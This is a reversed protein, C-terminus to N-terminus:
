KRTFKFGTKMGDFSSALSSLTKVTTNSSSSAIGQALTMLKTSDFTLSLQTSSVTAYATGFSLGLNQGTIKLTHNSSSYTYNATQSKGNIDVVCTNDDKFTITFKGAKIGVKEYYPSLKSVLKNAAVAGGAKALLNSSEFEVSPESYTWTGVISGSKTNNLLSGIVGSLLSSSSSSSSSSAAGSILSSLIEGGVSSGSTSTASTTGDSQTLLSPTSGVGCGSLFSASALLALAVITKNTKM